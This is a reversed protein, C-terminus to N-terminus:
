FRSGSEIKELFELSRIQTDLQYSLLEKMIEELEEGVDRSVKIRDLKEYPAREVHEIFNATGPLIKRSSGYHRSCYESVMFGSLMLLKIEFIRAIRKPSAKGKLLRLSNLLLAFIREGRDEETTLADVLEILYCAYGTELIDERVSEFFDILDCQSITHVASRKSDYFVIKNLSFVQVQYGLSGRPGRVGKILGKIKGFDRTYFSVLLSTERIDQKKLVIADTTHIAM